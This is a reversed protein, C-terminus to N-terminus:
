DAMASKVKGLDLELVVPYHDSAAAAVPADVVRVERVAPALSPTVFAHDIFSRYQPPKILCHYTTSAPQRLHLDRTPSTLARGKEGALMAELVDGGVAEEYRDKGFADNFDGLIVLGDVGKEAALELCITRTRELERRRWATVAESNGYKSKVHTTGVWLVRGGPTRFKVFSPGRPFLRNADAIGYHEKDRRIRPDDVPDSEKYYGDRVEVAEFGPKALMGLWQGETNGPFVRVLAYRGGLRDRNFHELMAQSCCEQIAVIDPDFADLSFTAAIEFLDEDDRFLESRDRSREPMLAQDFLMMFHEINWTAVRAIEGAARGPVAAHRGGAPGVPQVVPAEGVERKHWGPVKIAESRVWATLYLRATFTAAAALRERTWAAVPGNPDLPQRYDPVQDALAYLTDVRGHADELAAQVGQWLDDFPRVTAVPAHVDAPLKELLEDTKLHIGTRPSEGGDGARGDYHITTHLPQCLDQAYHALLGAYVLTKAGIHPNGPWRRHEAFAVALRETWERVAYPALGVDKPRLGKAALAALLDFRHAPLGGEPLREMGLYHEPTETRDLDEAALPKKFLDPDKAVHAALAEGDRFFAPAEDPLLGMADRTARAHGPGHWAGSPGAGVLLLVVTLFGFCPRLDTM